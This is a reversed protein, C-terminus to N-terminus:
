NADTGEYSEEPESSYTKESGTLKIESLCTDTIKGKHIKTIVFKFSSGELDVTKPQFDFVDDNFDLTETKGYSAEVKISAIRNNNKYSEESKALGNVLSIETLKITNPFSVTLSEGVGDDGTKGECWGTQFKGDFANRPDYDLEKGETQIYQSSATVTAAGLGAISITKVVTEGDGLDTKLIYSKKGPFQILTFNDAEEIVFVVLGAKVKGSKESKENPRLYLDADRIVTASKLEGEYLNKEELWGKTSVGKIEVLNFKVGNFDKEELLTVYEGRKVKGEPTLIPKKEGPNEILFADSLVTKSKKCNVAFLSVLCLLMIVKIFRSKIM